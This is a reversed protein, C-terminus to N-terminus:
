YKRILFYGPYVKGIIPIHLKPNAALHWGRKEFFDTWQKLTWKLVHSEDADIHRTDETVTIKHCMGKGEPKLTRVMESFVSDAFEPGPFHEFVDNTVIADFFGSPFPLEIANAVVSQNGREAGFLGRGAKIASFNLDIGYTKIGGYKLFHGLSGIGSGIDLVKNGPRLRLRRYVLGYNKLITKLDYYTNGTRELVEQLYPYDADYHYSNVEQKM